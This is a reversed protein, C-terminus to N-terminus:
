KAVLPCKSASLPAFAEDAPVTTRLTYYDWPAHSDGPKKVEFLYMDHTMLGDARIHGGTVFADDIPADRMAKMVPAADTTGATRVAQLYHLTASYVGAQSMNPMRQMRAFWRNAFARSADTRDWYFATTLMMGQTADLGMSNVDNIYVLLGAMTQGGQPLGFEAAQKISNVTDGGGNAFGVVKAGSNQAQLLYASFDATNAPVKVNGLVKGGNAQVVATSERALEDGFSYDATLFFWSNGGARSVAQATSHALAYTNYTYHVATPICSENTISAAGPGNLMVIRDKDKAVRMVALATASGTVDMIATMGDVDFWQRALNSAADAKNGHDAAIVEIPRGLVTGGFDEVAMRASTESGRGGVDAYFSTLDLLLGLKVPAPQAAAPVPAVITLLAVSGRITLLMARSFTM